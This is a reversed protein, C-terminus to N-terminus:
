LNLLSITFYLNLDQFEYKVESSLDFCYGLSLHRCLAVLLFSARFSFQWCRKKEMFYDTFALLTQRYLILLLGVIYLFVINTSHFCLIVSRM